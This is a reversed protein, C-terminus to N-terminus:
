VVLCYQYIKQMVYDRVRQWYDEEIFSTASLEALKWENNNGIKTFVKCTVIDGNEFPALVVKIKEYGVCKFVFEDDIRAPLSKNNM